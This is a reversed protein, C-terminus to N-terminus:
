APIATLAVQRSRVVSRRRRAKPRPLTEEALTQLCGFLAELANDTAAKLTKGQSVCGPIERCVAVYYGDEGKHLDINFVALPKSRM